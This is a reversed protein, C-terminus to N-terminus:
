AAGGVVSSVQSARNPHTWAGFTEPVAPRVDSLQGQLRQVLRWQGEVHVQYLDRWYEAVALDRRANDLQRQRIATDTEVGTFRAYLQKIFDM